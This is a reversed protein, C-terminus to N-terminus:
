QALGDKAQNENNPQNNSSLSALYFLVAKRIVASKNNHGDVKAAILIDADLEPDCEFTIKSM